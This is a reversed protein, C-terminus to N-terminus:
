GFAGKLGDIVIQTALAALIVGLLRTIVAQVRPGIWQLIRGAGLLALLALALVLALAGFVTLIQTAGQARAMLLMIAAISGPGAIMPMAIPFVAVDAMADLDLAKARAERRQARTEFVMDLGILFLMGGGAISFADLSVGIARLFPEGALAFAFLLIAAIAVARLAMANRAAHPAAATLGAFVLAAGAPDIVVALTIFASVFLDATM